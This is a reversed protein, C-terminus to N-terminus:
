HNFLLFKKRKVQQLLTQNQCSSQENNEFASCLIPLKIKGEGINIENNFDTSLKKIYQVILKNSNIDFTQNSDLNSSAIFAIKDM